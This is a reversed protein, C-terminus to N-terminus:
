KAKARRSKSLQRIERLVENSSVTEGRELQQWGLEVKARLDMLEADRQLENQELMRLSERVVESASQYKGSKVKARIFSNLEPTLSVNM